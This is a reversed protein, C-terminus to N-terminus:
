HSMQHRQCWRLLVHLGWFARWDNPRQKNQFAVLMRQVVQADMGIREILATDNFTEKIDDIFPKQHLLMELSLNFGLKKRLPFKEGLFPQTVKWEFLKNPSTDCRLRAPLKWVCAWLEPDVLPYRTQLSESMTVADSDRLTREILYLMTIARAIMERPTDGCVSAWFYELFEKPLGFWVSPDVHNSMDGFLKQRLWFPMMLYSVQYAALRHENPSGRLDHRFYELLKLPGSIRFLHRVAYRISENFGRPFYKVSQGIRSIWSTMDFEPYVSFLEDGGLGSMVVQIGNERAIRSVCYMNLGDFSPQDFADLSNLSWERFTDRSFRVTYQECGLQAAIQEAYPTEDYITEDLAVSFTRVKNANHTMLAAIVSSDLGGSFFVGTSAHDGTRISVSDRIAGRVEEIREAIQADSLNREDYGQPPLWYRKSEIVSGDLGIRLTHAPMLSKVGSILTTPAVTFGNFLYVELGIPDIKREILGSALLARTESAFIFTGNPTRAYYLPKKGFPDRALLIEKKAEDWIAVAFMGRLRLLFSEGWQAYASLALAADTQGPVAHGCQTLEHRLEERNYIEGDLTIWNGTENHRLPMRESSADNIKFLANGLVIERDVSEIRHVNRDHPGRHRMALLMTDVIHTSPEKGILGAIASM